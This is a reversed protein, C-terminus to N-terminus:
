LRHKLHTSFYIKLVTNSVFIPHKKSSDTHKQRIKKQFARKGGSAASVTRVILRLEPYPFLKGKRAAFFGM